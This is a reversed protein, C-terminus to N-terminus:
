YAAHKQVGPAVEAVQDVKVQNEPLIVAHRYDLTHAYGSNAPDKPFEVVNSESREAPTRLPLGYALREIDSMDDMEVKIEAAVMQDIFRNVNGEQALTEQLAKLAHIREGSEMTEYGAIKEIRTQAQEYADDRRERWDSFQEVNNEVQDLPAENKNAAEPIFKKPAGEM